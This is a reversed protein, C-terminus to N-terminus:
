NIVYEKLQSHKTKIKELARREIQRITEASVGMEQGIEKLTFSSSNYLGYRKILINRENDILSEVAKSLDLKLQSSFFLDDPRNNKEDSVVDMLAFDEENFPADLSLNPLFSEVLDEIVNKEISLYKSIEDITPFRGEVSFFTEKMKLIKKYMEGKRIPIRISRSRKAIYRSIFHKIWYAAYTSFKCGIEPDFKEAAHILGINGEQILDVLSCDGKVYGKAIKIVLRLNSTILKEKAKFNGAKIEKAFFKEEELSLMSFNKISNFYTKQHSVENFITQRM